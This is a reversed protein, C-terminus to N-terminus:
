EGTSPISILNNETFRLMQVFTNRWGKWKHDYRLQYASHLMMKDREAPEIRQFYKGYKGTLRGFYMLDDYGIFSYVNPEDSFRQRFSKIFAANKKDSYDIYYTCSLHMNYNLWIDPTLSKFNTWAILGVVTSKSPSKQVLSMAYNVFTEDKSPIFVVNNEAFEIEQGNPLSKKGNFNVIVPNYKKLARAFGNSLFNNGNDENLLIYRAGQYNQELYTATTDGLREGHPVGEVYYFPNKSSGITQFPSYRNIKLKKGASDLWAAKEKMDFLPGIILDADMRKLSDEIRKYTLGPLSIDLVHVKISYGCASLQEVGTLIGRLYDLGVTKQAADLGSLKETKTHLPLFLAFNYTSKKIEPYLMEMSDASFPAHPFEPLIEEAKARRISDKFFASKISDSARNAVRKQRDPREQARCSSYGGLLLLLILVFIFQTLRYAAHGAKSGNLRQPRNAALTM